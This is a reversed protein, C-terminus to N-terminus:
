VGWYKEERLRDYVADPDEEVVDEDVDSEELLDEDDPSMNFEFRDDM